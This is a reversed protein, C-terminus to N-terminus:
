DIADRLITAAMAQADAAPQPSDYLVSQAAAGHYLLALRRGVLEPDRAGAARALDALRQAFAHEHEAALRHARREPAAVEVAANVFPDGRLPRPGDSLTAYVELLRARPTLDTRALIAEPGRTRDAAVTQLWAAVLEDKGEFHQYLTRKSVHAEACLQVVGTAAIGQSEFLERAAALIRERAGRGGGM